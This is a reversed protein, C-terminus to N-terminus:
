LNNIADAVADETLYLSTATTDDVTLTRLRKPDVGADL